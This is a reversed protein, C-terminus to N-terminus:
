QDAEAENAAIVARRTAIRRDRDRAPKATSASCRRGAIAILGIPKAVVHAVIRLRARTLITRTTRSTRAFAGIVAGTDEAGISFIAGAVITIEFDFM